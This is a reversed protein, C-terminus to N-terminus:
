KSYLEVILQENVIPAIEERTPIHLVEAKHEAKEVKLWAPWGRSEAADLHAKSYDRSRKLDRAQIVDGPKVRYSPINVKAGNVRVHGHRVFQRAARRSPALGMRYVINDLRLELSQLLMEGTVGRARLARQFFLRFQGEQMGYMNRLRQKEQLQVGYDKLRPRRGGHMGPISHGQEVPCKAMYCRDGKLFLKMGQRRCRKCAPGIYRGM